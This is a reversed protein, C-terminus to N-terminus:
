LLCRIAQRFEVTTRIIVQLRSLAVPRTCSGSQSVRRRSEGRESSLCRFSHTNSELCKMHCPAFPFSARPSNPSDPSNPGRPCVQSDLAALREGVSAEIQIRGVALRSSKRSYLVEGFELDPWPMKTVCKAKAILTPRAPQATVIQMRSM